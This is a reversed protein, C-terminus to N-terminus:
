PADPVPQRPQAALNARALAEALVSRAGADLACDAPVTKTEYIRRIETEGDRRDTDIQARATEFGAGAANAHALAEERAKAEDKLEAAEDAGAKWAHTQWGAAFAGFAALACATPKVWPPMMRM